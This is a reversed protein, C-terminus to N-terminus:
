KVNKYSKNQVVKLIVGRDCKFKDVLQGLSMKGNPIPVYQNVRKFYTKRIFRVDDEKLVANSVDCGKPMKEKRKPDQWNKLQAESLKKRYEETQIYSTDRETRRGEDYAKKLGIGIHKKHRNSLKDARNAKTKHKKRPLSNAKQSSKCRMLLARIYSQTHNYSYGEKENLIKELRDAVRIGIVEKIECIDDLTFGQKSLRKELELTCGWKKGKIHYLYFTRLKYKEYLYDLTIDM